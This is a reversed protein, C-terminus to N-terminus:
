AYKDLHCTFNINIDFSTFAAAQAYHCTRLAADNHGFFGIFVTEERSFGVIRLARAAPGARNNTRFGYNFYKMM